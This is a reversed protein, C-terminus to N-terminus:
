RASEIEFGQLFTLAIGAFTVVDYSDSQESCFLSFDIQLDATM